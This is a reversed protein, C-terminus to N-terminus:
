LLPTYVSKLVEQEYQWNLEIAAKLANQKWEQLKVDDFMMELAEAIPKPEVRAVCLGVKYTDV